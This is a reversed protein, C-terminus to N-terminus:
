PPTSVPKLIQMTTASLTAGNSQLARVTAYEWGDPAAPLGIATQMKEKAQAPTNSVAETPIAVVDYWDLSGDTGVGAITETYLELIAKDGGVTLEGLPKMFEMNTVANLGDIVQNALKPHLMTPAQGPEVRKIREAM